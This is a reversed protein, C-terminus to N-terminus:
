VYDFRNAEAEELWRKADNYLSELVLLPPAVFMVCFIRYCHSDSPVRNVDNAYCASHLIRKKRRGSMM